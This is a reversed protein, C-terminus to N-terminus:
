MRLVDDTYYRHRLLENSAKIADKLKNAAL